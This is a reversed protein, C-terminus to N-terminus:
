AKVLAAKGSTPRMLVARSRALRSHADPWGLRAKGLAGRFDWFFQQCFRSLERYEGRNIERYRPYSRISHRWHPRKYPRKHGSLKKHLLLSHWCLNICFFASCAARAGLNAGNLRNGYVVDGNDVFIFAGLAAGANLLAGVLADCQLLKQPKAGASRGRPKDATTKTKGTPAPGVVVM